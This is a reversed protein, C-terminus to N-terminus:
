LSQRMAERRHRVDRFSLSKLYEETTKVSSHGMLRCLSYVDGGERIFRAAFTHRFTHPTFRAGSLEAWKALRLIMQRLGNITMAEHYRGVFVPDSLKCDSRFARVYRRLERRVPESLDIEREKQGKGLVKIYSEKPELHIDSLKLKCYEDARIGTDLLLLITVRDRMQLAETAEKKCVDLMKDIHDATFTAVIKQLVRPKKIRQVTLPKVYEGYDDDELCWHLFASIVRVYGALTHTSLPRGPTNANGQQKLDELFDDVHRHNVQELEGGARGCWSAFVLLRQEYGKATKAALKKISSSALYDSAAEEVNM